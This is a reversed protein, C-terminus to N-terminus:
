KGLVEDRLDGDAPHRGFWISWMAVMFDKGPLKAKTAKAILVDTGQGPRYRFQIDSGKRVDGSFAAKVQDVLPKIQARVAAASNSEIGAEIADRMKEDSITRLMHIWIVKPEDARIIHGADRRATKQYVAMAYVKVMWKTRLGVGVLQLQDGGVQLTAPFTYGGATAEVAGAVEPAFALALALGLLPLGVGRRPAGTQRRTLEM